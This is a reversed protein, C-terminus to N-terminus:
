CQAGGAQAAFATGGINVRGNNQLYLPFSGQRGDDTAYILYMQAGVQRVNWRGTISNNSANGMSNKIQWGADINYSYRGDRCLRITKLSSNNSIVSSKISTLLAGSLGQHWQETLSQALSAFPTAVAILVISSYIKRYSM